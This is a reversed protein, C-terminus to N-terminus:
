HYDGGELAKMGLLGRDLFRAHATTFVGDTSVTGLWCGTQLDLVTEYPLILPLDTQTSYRKITKM